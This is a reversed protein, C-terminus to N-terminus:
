GRKRFEQPTLGTIRKFQKSFYSINQFGSALAVDRVSMEDRMLLEKARRIREGTIYATLSVGMKEPFLHSLYDPSLYVASALENRSLEDALHDRIYQRVEEIVTNAARASDAYQTYAELLRTAWQTM